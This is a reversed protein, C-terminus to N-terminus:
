ARNYEGCDRWCWGEGISPCVCVCVYMERRLYVRSSDDAIREPIFGVDGVTM